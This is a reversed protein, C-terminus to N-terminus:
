CIFMIGIANRKQANWPKFVFTEVFGKICPGICVDLLTLRLAVAIYQRVVFPTHKVYPLCLM